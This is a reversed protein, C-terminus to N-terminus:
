LENLNTLYKFLCTSQAFAVGYQDGSQNKMTCHLLKNAHFMFIGGNRTKFKVKFKPLCFTGVGDVELEGEVGDCGCVMMFLYLIIVVWHHGFIFLFWGLNSSIGEKLRIIFCVDDDDLDMHFNVEYSKSFECTCFPSGDVDRGM